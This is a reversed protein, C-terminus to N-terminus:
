VAATQKPQSYPYKSFTIMACFSMALSIFKKVIACVLALFKNKRYKYICASM